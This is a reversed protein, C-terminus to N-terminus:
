TVIGLDLFSLHTCNNNPALAALDGTPDTSVGCDLMDVVTTVAAEGTFCEEPSSDVTLVLIVSGELALEFVFTFNGNLVSFCAL